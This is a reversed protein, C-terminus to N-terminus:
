NKLKRKGKSIDLRAPKIILDMKKGALSSDAKVAYSDEGNINMHIGTVSKNFVVNKNLALVSTYDYNAAIISVADNGIIDGTIDTLLGNFFWSAPKLLASDQRLWIFDEIRHNDIKNSDPWQLYLYVNDSKNLKKNKKEIKDSLKNELSKYGLLLLATQLEVPTVETTLLSEYAKGKVTCLIVEISGDIKHFIVPVSLTRSNTNIKIKNNIILVSDNIRKIMNGTDDHKQSYTVESFLVILIAIFFYRNM